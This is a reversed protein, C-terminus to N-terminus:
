HNSGCSLVHHKDMRSNWRSGVQEIRPGYTALGGAVAQSSSGDGVKNAFGRNAAHVATLDAVGARKFGQWKKPAPVAKFEALLRASGREYRALSTKVEPGPANPTPITWVSEGYTRCVDNVARLYRDKILGGSNRMADVVAQDVTRTDVYGVLTRAQQNRDVVVVTPSQEVDAGRTIRGYRSVGKVDASRVVVEGKWRDVNAVARRVARDDASKPNHFLLVLIKRDAIASRVHKPLGATDVAPAAAGGKAASGADSKSGAASQAGAEGTAEQVKADRAETAGAAGKAADVANGLGEVGPATAAPTIPPAPEEAPPRLFLMWAVILGISAVLLIRIPPSIQSM